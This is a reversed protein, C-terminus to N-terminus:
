PKEVLWMLGGHPNKELTQMAAVYTLAATEEDLGSRDHFAWAQFDALLFGKSAAGLCNQNTPWYCGHPAWVTLHYSWSGDVYWVPYPKKGALAGAVARKHLQEEEYTM